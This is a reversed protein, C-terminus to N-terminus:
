DALSRVPRLGIQDRDADLVDVLEKVAQVREWETFFIEILIGPFEDDTPCPFERGVLRESDDYWTRHKLEWRAERV